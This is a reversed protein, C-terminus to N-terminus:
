YSMEASETSSEMVGKRILSLLMSIIHNCGKRQCVFQFVIDLPMEKNENSNLKKCSEDKSYTPERWGGGGGGCRNQQQQQDPHISKGQGISM